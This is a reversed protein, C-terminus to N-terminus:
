SLVTELSRNISDFLKTSLEDHQVRLEDSEFVIDNWSGMGGFCWALGAAYFLQRQELSYVHPALLDKHYFDAEPRASTFARLANDFHDVWQLHNSLAFERIERLTRELREKALEISLVKDGAVPGSQGATYSVSWIRDQPHDEQTVQWINWWEIYQNGRQEEILWSGGGGVFGAMAYDPMNQEINHVYKFRLHIAGSLALYDFWERPSSAVLKPKPSFFRRPKGISWFDVRSCFQFASNKSFFEFDLQRNALHHNGHSILAVIQAITGIM